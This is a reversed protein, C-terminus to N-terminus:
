VQGQKSFGIVFCKLNGDIHDKDQIFTKNTWMFLVKNKSDLYRVVLFPMM